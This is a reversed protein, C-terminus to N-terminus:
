PRLCCKHSERVYSGKSATLRCVAICRTVVWNIRNIRLEGLSRFSFSLLREISQRGGQSPGAAKRGEGKLLAAPGNRKARARARAFVRRQPDNQCGYRRRNSLERCSPRKAKEDSAAIPVLVIRASKQERHPESCRLQGVNRSIHTSAHDESVKTRPRVQHKSTSTLRPERGRLYEVSRIAGVGDEDPGEPVIHVLFHDTHCSICDDIFYIIANQAVPVVNKHMDHWLSWTPIQGAALSPSVPM